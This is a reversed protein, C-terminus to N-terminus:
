SKKARAAEKKAKSVNQAIEKRQEDTLGDWYKKMGRKQKAKLIAKQEPTLRAWWNKMREAIEPKIEKM